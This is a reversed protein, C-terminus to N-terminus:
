SDKVAGSTCDSRKDVTMRDLFVASDYNRDGQDFISLYLTHFRRSDLPTSARLLRTAADYTTGRAQKSTVSLADTARISVREGNVGTAFNDPSVITPDGSGQADWTSNNLEAIFADNFVSDKFEPFEESLFRFRISLCNAGKPRKFQIRVITADRAGRVFPGNVETGSDPATNKDGAITADGTSLIGFTKGARPFGALREDAIAAPNGDPPLLSFNARRIIKPDDAIAQALKFAEGKKGSPREPTPEIDAGATGVTGVAVAVAVTAVCTAGAGAFWGVQRRRM